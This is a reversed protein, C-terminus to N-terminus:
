MIVRGLTERQRLLIFVRAGAMDRRPNNDRLTLVLDVIDQQFVLM